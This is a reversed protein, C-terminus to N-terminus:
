KPQVKSNIVGEAMSNDTQVPTPPQKHGMENLIIRIYVAERASIYLAALEAETASSMVHKIIHAINLIAGNNPPIDTNNSLFFHGGARGKAKPENLYGADSHVALIMDSASYTLVAEEQSALYDLLQKTQKMTDETPNAQQSAIASIPTLITSDVARGYYLFKGCVQQIFRKGEKNLQPSNSAEQAYQKKAGYNPPTHQFPSNQRKSPKTHNFQTLAKKVYGPMSLHVQRKAYDWDLTIGIYRAGTWDETVDYHNKLVNMLHRADKGHKYKVGFNDVVLTFQIPRTDHTWLGPVLKSQKYGHKNLRKELLQNALLGSQPLGYMGKTVEMYVYGDSTVKDQLKYEKIIEDPIDSIKLRIYEPRKLPTNLYFNSIDATMFRARKTSIVSNFLIKAVLMEATPTAVEGNYNTHDGGGVLRTRNREKKENRVKCLFSAYTVDKARSDPVDRKRIFKMTNTGKIRGGVGQALRGFENAASKSWERKYRPDRLLQRYKLLKGTDRDLVAMAEHVDNEARTVRKILRRAGKSLKSPRKTQLEEVAMAINPPLRKSRTNAAPPSSKSRTNMAPSNAPTTSTRSTKSRIKKAPRSATSKTPKSKAQSSPKVSSGAKSKTTKAPTTPTTNSGSASSRTTSTAKKASPNPKSQAGEVRPLSQTENTAQSTTDVRPAGQMQKQIRRMSRTVRQFPVPPPASEVPVTTTTENSEETTKDRNREVVRKTAQMLQNIDHFDNENKGDSFKRVTNICTVIANVLKDAHTITPNTINKHQFQVTDSLREGKTTKVHCNHTRYHEPSTFLYWGDVSHYSWSGRTDAKEHIQVQCGM